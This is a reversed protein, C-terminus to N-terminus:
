FSYLTHSIEAPSEEARLPAIYVGGILDAGNDEGGKGRVTNINRLLPIKTEIQIGPHRNEM